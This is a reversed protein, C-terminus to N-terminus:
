IFIHKFNAYQVKENNGEFSEIILVKHPKEERNTSTYVQLHNRGELVHNCIQTNTAPTHKHVGM